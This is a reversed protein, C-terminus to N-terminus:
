ELLELLDAFAQEPADCPDIKEDENSPDQRYEALPFQFTNFVEHLPHAVKTSGNISRKMGSYLLRAADRGARDADMCLIIIEAGSQELVNVKFSTWSHTGLICMAPIGKSLLRLADRPGEVLVITKLGKKNMLSVAADYPFLGHTRSWEGPANLYSPRTKDTPKKPMGKVYGKLEGNVYVPLFLRYETTYSRLNKNWEDIEIMRCGVTKLFDFSFTRWVQSGLRMKLAAHENLPHLRYVEHQLGESSSEDGLLAERLYDMNVEPVDMSDLTAFPQLGTRQAFTNWGMEEGCGRCNFFGVSRPKNVDHKVQGSPSSDNHFPCCIMSYRTGMRKKGPLTSISSKVHNVRESPDILPKM